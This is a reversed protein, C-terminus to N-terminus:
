SSRSASGASSSPSPSRSTCSARAPSCCSTPIRTAPTTSAATRRRSATCPPASRTRTAAARRSSPTPRAGARALHDAPLHHDGQRRGAHRQDPDGEAQGGRRHRRGETGAGPDADQGADGDPQRAARRSDRTRNRVTSDSALAARASGSCRSGAPSSTPWRRGSSRRRRRATRCRGPSRPARRSPASRGSPRGRAALEADREAAGRHRHQAAGVTCVAPFLAGAATAKQLGTILDHDNLTGDEFFREMLAEDAEAVAEILATRAAQAEGALAEPIPGEIAPGGDPPATFAKMGVVDVIGTCAEGEGIPLHIPM